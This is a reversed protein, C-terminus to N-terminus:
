RRILASTLIWRIRTRTLAANTRPCMMWQTQRSRKATTGHQTLPAPTSSRFPSKTGTPRTRSPTAPAAPPAPASLLSTTATTPYSTPPAPNPTPAPFPFTLILSPSPLLPSSQCPSSIFLTIPPPLHPLAFWQKPDHATDAASYNCDYPGLHINAPIHQSRELLYPPQIM